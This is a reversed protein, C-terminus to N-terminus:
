RRKEDADSALVRITVVDLDYRRARRDGVIQHLIGDVSIEERQALM